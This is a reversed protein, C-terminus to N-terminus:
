TEEHEDSEINEDEASNDTAVLRKMQGRYGLFWIVSGIAASIFAKDYDQRFVLVLAGIGFLAAVIIWFPRM